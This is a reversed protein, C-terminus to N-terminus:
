SYFSHPFSHCCNLFNIVEFTTTKHLYIFFYMYKFAQDRVQSGSDM